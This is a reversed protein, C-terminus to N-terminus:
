PYALNCRNESINRFCLIKYKIRIIPSIMITKNELNNNRFDALPDKRSRPTTATIAQRSRERTAQLPLPPTAPSSGDETLELSEAIDDLEYLTLDELEM